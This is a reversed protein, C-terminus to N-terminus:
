KLANERLTGPFGAEIRENAEEVNDMARRIISRREKFINEIEELDNLKLFSM